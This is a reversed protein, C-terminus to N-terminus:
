ALLEQHRRRAGLAARDLVEIGTELRDLLELRVNLHHVRLGVLDDREELPAVDRHGHPVRVAGAGGRRLAHRHGRCVRLLARDADHGRDGNGLGTLLALQRLLVDGGEERRFALEAERLRLEGTGGVLLDLERGIQPLEHGEAVDDPAHVEGVGVEHRLLKRLPRLAPPALDRTSRRRPALADGATLPAAGASLTRRSRLDNPATTATSSTERSAAGPSNRERRPGDPQPLLVTSRMTAPSTSGSAPSTTSAPSSM